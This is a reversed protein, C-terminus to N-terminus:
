PGIMVFGHRRWTARGEDSALYALLARAQEASRSAAIVAAPYVITPHSGAPFMDVVRVRPEALADTAYVIGFPAEGRAVLTLAARVNETRAIRDRVSAWVGLAELAAKGYKGAPVSDPNAMALRDTGLAAALPFGPAISLASRSVAPAILVLRNGLLDVRSGPALLKRAGLHDMWDVDASIFVDAPAGAEIQKALANSAAYALTLKDGSARGFGRAQEDLAERLSAAAFVTIEAASVTGAALAILVAAAVFTLTNRM